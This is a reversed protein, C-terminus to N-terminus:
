FVVLDDEMGELLGLHLELPLPAASWFYNQNYGVNGRREITFLASRHQPLQMPDPSFSLRSLSTPFNWGYQIRLADNFRSTTRFMHEFKDSPLREFQAVVNSSYTRPRATVPRRLLGATGAWEFFDDLLRDALNTDACAAIVGDNFLSMELIPVSGRLGPASFRGIEFKVGSPQFFGDLSTPVKTFQYREAAAKFLTPLDFGREPRVEDTVVLHVVRGLESGILKM